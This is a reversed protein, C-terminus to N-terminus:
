FGLILKLQDPKNTSVLVYPYTQNEKLALKLAFNASASFFLLARADSEPGIIARIAQKDLTDVARIADLSISVSGLKAMGGEVSIVKAASIRLATVFAFVALGAALGTATDAFPLLVLWIAPILLVLPLLGPIGPILREKFVVKSKSLATM